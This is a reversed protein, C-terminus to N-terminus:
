CTRFPELLRHLFNSLNMVDTNIRISESEHRVTPFTLKLLVSARIIRVAQKLSEVVMVAMVIMMMMMMLDDAMNFRQFLTYPVMETWMVM